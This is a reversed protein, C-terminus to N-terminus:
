FTNKYNSIINLRQAKSSHNKLIRKRETAQSSNKSNKLEWNNVLISYKSLVPFVRQVRSGQNFQKQFGPTWSQCV